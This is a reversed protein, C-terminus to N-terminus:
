TNRSVIVDDLNQNRVQKTKDANGSDVEEESHFYKNMLASLQVLWICHNVCVLSSTGFKEFHQWKIKWGVSLEHQKTTM